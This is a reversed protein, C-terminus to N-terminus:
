IHSRSPQVYWGAFSFFNCVFAAFQSREFIIRGPAFPETAVRSEIWGFSLTFPICLGLCILTIPSKWSENSGQDLGVLLLTVSTVLTAAGSFDVRRIKEKWHTEDNHPLKLTLLVSAFALLCLPFQGTFAWQWGITDSLFGGLPAGIGSGAAYVINLIGQSM